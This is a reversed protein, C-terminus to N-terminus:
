VKHKPLPSVAADRLPQTATHIVRYDAHVCTDNRARLAQLLSVLWRSAVRCGILLIAACGILVIAACGILVIVSLLLTWAFCAWLVRVFPHRIRRPNFVQNISRIQLSFHTM